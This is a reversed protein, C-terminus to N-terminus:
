LRPSANVTASVSALVTSGEPVSACLRSPANSTTPAVGARASSSGANFGSALSLLGDGGLELRQDGPCLVLGPTFDLPRWLLALWLELRCRLPASLFGLRQWWLTLAFAAYHRLAGWVLACVLGTPQRLLWQMFDDQGSPLSWAGPIRVPSCIMLEFLGTSAMSMVAPM